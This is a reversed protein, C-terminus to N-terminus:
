PRVAKGLFSRMAGLLERTRLVASEYDSELRAPSEPAPNPLYEWLALIWIFLSVAYIAPPMVHWANELAPGAYARLATILLTGVLFFGYGRIIGKLNRGLGVRYYSILALISALVMVQVARLDRELEGYNTAPTWDPSALSQLTVFSFVVAFILLVTVRAFREAGAYPALTKRVIELIVGYGVVLCLFQTAWYLNTYAGQTLMRYGTFRCIDVALVCAIYTFFLPYKSFSKARFGRFLLLSELLIGTLWTFLTVM